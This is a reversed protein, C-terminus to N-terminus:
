GSRCAARGPAPPWTWSCPWTSCSRAGRPDLRPVPLQGQDADPLGDVRLHRHQGLGGQQRRPAPLLQHAGHPRHRRLPRPVGRAPPGSRACRAQLGGQDQLEGPRRAGRRRPQRPHQHLVLRAPRAHPGQPRPGPHDQALDPRDQLGQRRHARGRPRRARAHLAPGGVPETRRQRLAGELDLAAYAYIQSPAINEDNARLGAEFAEITAHVASAEQYAETSGCWVMVLRDCENETRFREIDAILAEAQAWKDTVTKVRTGDLRKVWRQDFVADM